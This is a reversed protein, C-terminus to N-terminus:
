WRGGLWLLALVVGLVLVVGWAWPTGAMGAMGSMMGGMMGGTMGGGAFLLDLALFAVLAVAVILLLSGLDMGLVM